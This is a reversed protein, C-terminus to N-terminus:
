SMIPSFLLGFIFILFLFLVQVIVMALILKNIKKFFAFLAIVLFIMPISFIILVILYIISVYRSYVSLTSILGLIFFVIGPISVVGMLGILIKSNNRIKYVISIFLVALLIMIGLVVGIIIVSMLFYDQNQAYSLESVAGKYEKFYVLCCPQYEDVGCLETPSIQPTIEMLKLTEELSEGTQECVAIANARISLEGNNKIYSFSSDKSLGVELNKFRIENFGIIVSHQDFGQDALQKSTIIGGRDLTFEQTTTSGGGQVASLGNGIADVFTVQSSMAFVFGIFLIILFSILIKKM